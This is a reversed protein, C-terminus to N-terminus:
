ISLGGSVRWTNSELNVEIAQLVAKYDVAKPMRIKIGQRPEQFMLSIEQIM